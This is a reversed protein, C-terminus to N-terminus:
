RQMEVGSPHQHSDPQLWKEVVLGLSRLKARFTTRSIGLLEAAQLQNGRAHRLVEELVIRDVAANVEHYIQPAGEHLLRRVLQTVESPVDVQNIANALSPKGSRMDVPLCDVTRFESAAQLM